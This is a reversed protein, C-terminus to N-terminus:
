LTHGNGWDPAKKDNWMRESMVPSASEYDTFGQRDYAEKQNDFNVSAPDPETFKFHRPINLKADFAPDGIFLERPWITSGRKPIGGFRTYTYIDAPYQFGNISLQIFIKEIDDTGDLKGLPKTLVTEIEGPMLKIPKEIVEIEGAANVFTTNDYVTTLYLHNHLEATNAYANISCRIGDQYLDNASKGPVTIDGLAVFLALTLNTEAAGVIVLSYHYANNPRYEDSAPKMSPYVSTETPAILQKSIESYPLFTRKATATVDVQFKSATVYKDKEEVTLYSDQTPPIGQYRVWPEGLYQDGDGMERSKWRIFKGDTVVMQDAIYDPFVIGQALMGNIVGPNYPNKAYFFRVRPDENSKLLEIFGRAPTGFWCGTGPGNNYKDTVVRYDDANTSMYSGNAVEQAIQKAKARNAYLLRMAIKLRLSNAYKVWNSANAKFVPEQEKKISIQSKALEADSLIRIAEKLEADMTDYISEQTDYKPRLLPPNTYLGKLADIYPIDGNFDTAYIGAQVFMIQSMQYLFQHSNKKVDDFNSIVDQLEKIKGGMGYLNGWFPNDWRATEFMNSGNLSGRDGVSIQSWPLIYRNASYFWIIYEGARIDQQASLFLYSPDPNNVAGPDSNIEAFKERGCGVFVLISVTFILLNKM